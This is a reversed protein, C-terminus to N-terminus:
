NNRFLVVSRGDREGLLRPLSDRKPERKPDIAAGLQTPVIQILNTVFNISLIRPQSEIDGMAAEMTIAGKM